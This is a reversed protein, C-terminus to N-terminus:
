RDKQKVRKLRSSISGEPSHRRKKSQVRNRSRTMEQEINVSYFTNENSLAPTATEIDLDQISSSHMQLEPDTSSSLLIEQSFNNIDKNASTMTTTTPNQVDDSITYVSLQQKVEVLPDFELTKETLDENPEEDYLDDPENEEVHSLDTISTTHTENNISTIKLVQYRLQKTLAAPEQLLIEYLLHIIRNHTGFQLEFIIYLSIIICLAQDISAAETIVNYDLYILYKDTTIKITPHPSSPEKDTLVYQYSDTFHRASIKILRAVPLDNVFGLSDPMNALLKPVTSKLNAEIDVNCLYQIEDFILLASSYGTYEQLVKQTTHNEVYLRRELLTKKWSVKVNHYDFNEKVLENKMFQIHEDFEQPNDDANIKNWFETHAERRAVIVNDSQKVPRGTSKGFKLKRLAEIDNNISLKELIAIGISRYEHTGPYLLSYKTTVDTFVADLLLRRVNSRGRFHNLEAKDIFQQIKPPLDSVIYKDPFRPQEQNEKNGKEDDKNSLITTAENMVESDTSSDFVSGNSSNNNSFPFTSMTTFQNTNRQEIVQQFDNDLSNDIYKGSAVSDSDNCTVGHLPTRHETLFRVREKITKIIEYMISQPLSFLTESDVDERVDAPLTRLDKETSSYGERLM